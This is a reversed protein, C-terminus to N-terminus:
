ASSVGSWTEVGAGGVVGNAGRPDAGSAVATEPGTLSAREFGPGPVGGPTQVSGLRSPCTTGPGSVGGYVTGTAGRPEAGPGASAGGTDAYPGGSPASVGIAGPYPTGTNGTWAGEAAGRPM